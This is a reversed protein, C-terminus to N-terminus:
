NVNSAAGDHDPYIFNESIVSAIDQEPRPFHPSPTVELQSTTNYLSLLEDKDKAQSLKAKEAIVEDVAGKSVKLM